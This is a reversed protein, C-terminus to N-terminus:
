NSFSEASVEEMIPACTVFINATTAIFAPLLIDKMVNLIEDVTVARVRKLMVDNWDKPLGRVVQRIFSGQAATVMTAEGNAFGLVISSIAGELALTDIVTKRSVFSEVVEKAAAFAKSADPSRYVDFSIHGSEVHRSFSTGYALGTGRVATWLPGEVADLYSIAVSLAPIQPDNLSEPGKAVSLAFSSDITPLPIIYALNGLNKGADSLRSLRDDMPRLPEQVDMDKGLLEWASVPGKLRELNAIVLVRFNSFQCLANRVQELQSVIMDPDSDLLRKVRKLYLAKVLTGRARGISATAAHTIVEAAYAMTGGSRKEDPIDALLKATSAKLRTVDFVGNMLLERIWRIAINYKDTEVQFHIRLLEPNGVSSGSDINYGVTDKELEMVIQEFEIVENGRKVPSNFFNELYVSLLPRLHVPIAETCLLLSIRAFSTPIHEFHIFLPLDSKDEDVLLQIPNHLIGLKRAHGSRASTTNIFHISKTDPIKFRELLDRPIEQDNEGKAAALRRELEKLGKEGLGDKQAAVRAKEEAKLQQSLKASPQGLITIHAADSIWAKLFDRWQVDDWAELIDYEKLSELDRLTSGDRNGFLFDVIISDTFFSGSTEAYFKLQRRQRAICDKMYVMDLSRAATEQLVEFFRAEVNALAKTEVSSLTFQIVTAPRYELSYYVASAVQEREVLVNELVSASSGALYTM